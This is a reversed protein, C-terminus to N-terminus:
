AILIMEPFIPEDARAIETAIQTMCGPCCFRRLVMADDIFQAPDPASVLATVPEEVYLAGTKFSQRYGSLREGCAVCELVREGGRDAAQVYEHVPRPAEGTAAVADSAAVPCARWAARAARIADRRATTAAQDFDGAGDLVVGYVGAASASSVAGVGADRAVLAPDREIPDGYGGGGGVRLEFVDGSALDIGNSKGSLDM